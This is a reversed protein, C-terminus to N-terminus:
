EQEGEVMAIREGIWQMANVAMGNSLAKYRSGYPTLNRRRCPVDTHDDPFGKM